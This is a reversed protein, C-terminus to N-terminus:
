VYSTTGEFLKARVISRLVTTVPAVAVLIYHLCKISDFFTWATARSNNGKMLTVNLTELVLFFFFFDAKENDQFHKIDSQHFSVIATCCCPSEKIRNLTEIVNQSGDCGNGGHWPTNSTSLQELHCGRIYLLLPKERGDACM